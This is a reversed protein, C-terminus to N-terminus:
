KDILLKKVVTKNDTTIEIIYLGNKLSNLSILQENNAFSESYITKGQLDSIRISKHHNINETIISFQGSNPNPFIIVSQVLQHDNTSTLSSASFRMVWIDKFNSSQDFEGDDSTTHGTAVFDGDSTEQIDNCRDFGSGGYSKEWEINGQNNVKVIWIDLAGFNETVDNNMSGSWGAVIYGGTSVNKISQAKDANSGGYNKEWIIEGSSNLKLLWIDYDGKNNTLDGDSSNSSGAIIYGGDPTLQISQSEDNGSGGYTHSWELDGSADMKIVWIDNDGRNSGVDGDTSNSYGTAIYGLDPTQKISTIQDSSSGGYQQEWELNGDVDLKRIIGDIEFRNTTGAVIFGGDATISFSNTNERPFGYDQQWARTFDSEYKVVLSGTESISGAVVFGGDATQRVGGLKDTGIAGRGKSWEVDGQPNLKLNLWDIDTLNGGTNNTGSVFYGGDNTQIIKEGSDGNYKRIWEIQPQAHLATILSFTIFILIIQLRKM